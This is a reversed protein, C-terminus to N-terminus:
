ADGGGLEAEIEEISPLSSKLEEPLNQTITYESVGIPKNINRLAYEVVTDKKSKCILIGITPNDQEAKLIEDVASIYFNLKGAFEPKFKVTKLEVVVYCHLRVHYFLLDIFFEDGDVELKYQRGLYSFGAGLELLFRTIHEILANELEQEDHREKLMLFDFHYPDKLMQRALDSHPEPLTAKFNTVAKGERLYLGSEIQHTLVVRSWNNQITKQVYFLAQETTKIKSIIVLNHGWPIQAVLQQGIAPAVSWFQFWQRMYKLNRLSFGKLDPFEAQLDRSMQLLFGDGWASEQQKAVIREALEWYLHLLAQNVAVSAKIQAGQIRQKIDQIFALYDETKIISQTM